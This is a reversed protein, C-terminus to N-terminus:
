GSPPGPLPDRGQPCFYGLKGAKGTCLHRLFGLQDIISSITSVHSDKPSSLYPLSITAVTQNERRVLQISKM